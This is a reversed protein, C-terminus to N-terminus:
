VRLVAVEVVPKMGWIQGAARRIATRLAEAL